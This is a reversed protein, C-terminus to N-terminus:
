KRAYEGCSWERRTVPYRSASSAPVNASPPVPAVPPYRHCEGEERTSELRQWHKCNRCRPKPQGAM